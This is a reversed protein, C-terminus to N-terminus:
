GPVGDPQPYRIRRCLAGTEGLERMVGPLEDFDSEGDILADLAADRLLDLALALRQRHTRRARVAPAVAGVQSSKLALRRGHFAEGLPVDVRRDGYWSMEVVTAEFAALGLATALGQPAGSTHVVVDADPAADAPLAFDLGLADATARRAPDIDILEVDCGRIGAALWAVLCGVVGAGVVAVRDGVAPAADWIGNLATEMNAALVARKAPLNPPLPQVAGVPVVYRTQHPHLCFVERGRLDPPGEEVVGVSIYGYKVPAPFDGKQFPARMRRFEGAPVRGEFVLAETGRSIASYLTSVLVEDSGPVAVREARIEGRGPQAIWFARADIDRDQTM